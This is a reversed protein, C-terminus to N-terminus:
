KISKSKKFLGTLNKASRPIKGPKSVQLLDSTLFMVSHDTIWRGTWPCRQLTSAQWCSPKVIDRVSWGATGIAGRPSPIILTKFCQEGSLPVAASNVSRWELDTCTCLFLPVYVSVSLVCIFALCLLCRTSHLGLRNFILAGCYWCRTQCTSTIEKEGRDTETNRVASLTQRLLPNGTLGERAGGKGGSEFGESLLHLLLFPPTFFQLLVTLRSYKFICRKWEKKPKAIASFRRNKFGWEHKTTNVLVVFSKSCLLTCRWLSEM